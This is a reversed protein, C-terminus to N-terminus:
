SNSQEEIATKIKDLNETIIHLKTMMENLVVNLDGSNNNKNNNQNDKKLREDLKKAEEQLILVNESEKKGLTEPTITDYLDNNEDIYGINNKFEEEDVFKKHISDILNLYVRHNEIKPARDISAIETYGSSGKKLLANIKNKIIKNENILEESKAELKNAYKKWKEQIDNIKKSKEVIEEKLRSIHTMLIKKKM